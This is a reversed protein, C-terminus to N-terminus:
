LIMKQKIKVLIDALKEADFSSGASSSVVEEVDIDEPTGKFVFGNDEAM